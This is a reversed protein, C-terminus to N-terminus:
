VLAYRIGACAKCTIGKRNQGNCGPSYFQYRLIVDAGEIDNGDARRTDTKMFCFPKSNVDRLDQQLFGEKNVVRELINVNSNGKLHRSLIDAKNHLAFCVLSDFGLQIMDIDEKDHIGHM